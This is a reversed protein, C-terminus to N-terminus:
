AALSCLYPARLILDRDKAGFGAIQEDGRRAFGDFGRRRLDEHTEPEIHVVVDTWAPGGILAASIGVAAALSTLADSRHHWADAQLAKSKIAESHSGVPFAWRKLRDHGALCDVYLWGACKWSTDIGASCPNRACSAPRAGGRIGAVAVFRRSGGTVGDERTRLTIPIRLVSPM